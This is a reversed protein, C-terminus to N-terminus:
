KREFNTVDDDTGYEGDPGASWLIFSDRNYPRASPSQLPTAGVGTKKDWIFNPFSKLTTYDYSTYNNTTSIGFPELIEWNDDINYINHIFTERKNAKFYLIPRQKKPSFDDLIVPNVNEWVRDDPTVAPSEPLVVDNRMSGINFNEVPVYPGYRTIFGDWGLPEGNGTDIMYSPIGATPHIDASYGVLDIGFMTEALRHAGIDEHGADPPNQDITLSYGWPESKPYSGHDNKFQEMGMTISHFTAKLGAVKAQTRIKGLAPMLISVLLAIISIVVLLEVLTFAKKDLRRM